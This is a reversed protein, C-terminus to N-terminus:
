TVGDTHFAHTSEWYQTTFRSATSTNSFKFRFTGRTVIKGRIVGTACLCRKLAKKLRYPIARIGNKRSMDAYKRSVFEFGLSKMTDVLGKENFLTCTTADHGTDTPCFLMADTNMGDWIMTEVVLDGGPKLLDRIIKMSWFPYRLHYLVGPFIVADFTGIDSPCLDYLNRELMKVKSGFYPILFEVAAVSLDNDIGIVEKAGFREAAFSFLGDRCGIDLVRKGTLNLARVYDMCVDQAPVFTPDGPTYITETVKIIHYYKYSDVKARLETENM